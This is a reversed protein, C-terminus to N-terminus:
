KVLNRKPLVKGAPHLKNGLKLKGECPPALCLCVLGWTEGKRKEREMHWNQLPPLWGLLSSYSTWTFIGAPSDLSASTCPACRGWYVLLRCIRLTSIERKAPTTSLLLETCPTVLIQAIIQPVRATFVQLPSTRKSGRAIFVFQEEQIGNGNLKTAARGRHKEWTNEEAKQRELSETNM